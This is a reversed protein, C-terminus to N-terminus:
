AHKAKKGGFGVATLVGNVLANLLVVAPIFSVVAVVAVILDQRPFPLTYGWLTSTEM